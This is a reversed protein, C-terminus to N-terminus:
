STMEKLEDRLFVDMESCHGHVTCNVTHLEKPQPAKAYMQVAYEYPVIADNRSHMMVLKRPPIRALYTDPDISRYFRIMELNTLAGSAIADDAGYGSTSIAIVGKARQDLACATIGFRAGNSEGLYVIKEPDIRTANGPLSAAASRLVEAASLADHVMRHEVPEQGDQFARLDGQIDIGGLNRQDIALSAYGMGSLIKALGQEAEKTVTAGPLLVVGPVADSQGTRSAPPLRLLGSVEADRSKFTVEYLADSDGISANEQAPSQLPDIRYEPKVQSYEIFGGDTVRWEQSAGSLLSTGIIAAIVCGVILLLAAIRYDAM